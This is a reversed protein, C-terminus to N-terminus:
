LLGLVGNWEASVRPSGWANTGIWFSGTYLTPVGEKGPYKGSSGDRDGVYLRDCLKLWYLGADHVDNSEGDVYFAADGYKANAAWSAGAIFFLIVATTTIRTKM